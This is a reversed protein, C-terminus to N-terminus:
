EKLFVQEKCPHYPSVLNGVRTSRKPPPYRWFSLGMTASWWASPTALSLWQGLGWTIWFRQWWTGMAERSVVAM